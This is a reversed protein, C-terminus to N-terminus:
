TKRRNAPKIEQVCDKTSIGSTHVVSCALAKQSAFKKLCTHGTNLSKLIVRAMYVIKLLMAELHGETNTPQGSNVADVDTTYSLCVKSAAKLM